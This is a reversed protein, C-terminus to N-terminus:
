NSSEEEIPDNFIFQKRAAKEEIEYRYTIAGTEDTLVTIIAEGDTTNIKYDLEYTGEIEREFQYVREQNNVKLLLEIDIEDDEQEFSIKSQSPIGNISAQIKFENENEENEIDIRVRNENNSPDSAEFWFEEEDEEITKEGILKYNVDHVVLLGDLKFMQESVNKDFLSTHQADEQILNYYILYTVGGFSYTVQYEYDEFTSPAEDLSLLDNLGEDLVPKLKKFYHHVIPLESEIQLTQTTETPYVMTIPADISGLALLDSAMHVSLIMSERIGLPAHEQNIQKEVQDCGVLLVMLLLSLALAIKKM